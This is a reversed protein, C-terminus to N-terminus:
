RGRPSQPGRDTSSGCNLPPASAPRRHPTPSPMRVGSTPARRRRGSPIAMPCNGYTDGGHTHSGTRHCTFEDTTCAHQPFPAAGAGGRGEADRAQTRGGHRTVQFTPLPSSAERGDTDHNARLAPAHSSKASSASQAHARRTFRRAHPRKAKARTLDRALQARKCHYSARPHSSHRNRSNRGTPSSRAHVHLQGM